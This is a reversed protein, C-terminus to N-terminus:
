CYRERAYLSRYHQVHTVRLGPVGSRDVSRQWGTLEEMTLNYRDCAEAFSLLGGNVAAVIEAKRLASWRTTTTSPLSALTLPKGSPGVVSIPRARHNRVM